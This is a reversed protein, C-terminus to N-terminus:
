KPRVSSKRADITTVCSITILHRSIEVGTTGGTLCQCNTGKVFRNCKSLIAKNVTGVDRQVTLHSM